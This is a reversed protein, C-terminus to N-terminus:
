FPIDDDSIEASQAYEDHAAPRQDFSATNNPEPRFNPGKWSIAGDEDTVKEIKRKDALRSLVSHVSAAPNKQSALDFGMAELRKLVDQTSVIEKEAEMVEMCSENIGLADTWPSESCMAALATITRRLRVVENDLEWKEISIDQLRSTARDFCTRAAKLSERFSELQEDTM